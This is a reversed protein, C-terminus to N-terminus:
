KSVWLANSFYKSFYIETAKIINDPNRGNVDMSAIEGEHVIEIGDPPDTRRILIRNEVFHVKYSSTAKITRVRMMM